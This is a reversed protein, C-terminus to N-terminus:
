DPSNALEIADAIHRDFHNYAEQMIQVIEDEDLSDFVDRGDSNIAQIDEVYREEDCGPGCWPSSPDMVASEAPEFTGIYVVRYGDYKFSIKSEM